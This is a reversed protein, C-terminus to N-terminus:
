KCNIVNLFSKTQRPSCTFLINLGHSSGKKKDKDQMRLM